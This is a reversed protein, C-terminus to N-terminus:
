LGQPVAVRTGEVIGAGSVQVLGDADDFLGTQVAVLHSGRGNPGVVQLAYGGEQVALLADVPVALVGSARQSTIAVQVPAQDLTGTAGPDDLSIVIHVTAQPAAGAPQTGAGGNSTATAVSGISAVRGTTSRNSGPLTITVADGQRVLSQLSADLDVAVQRAAPTADMVPANPGAAAGLTTHTAQVRIAGTEVVAEGLGLTGTQTVGLAAQWREVAAADASTFTGDAALDYPTAFGLALLDQEVEQVDPGSIGATLPRWLPQAGYLLPIPRGDVAYLTQGQAVVQGPAPLWTVIGHGGPGPSYQNVVPFPTGYGLTGNVREQSVLDRRAVTATPLAPVAPAPRPQLRLWAEAGAAALVAVLLVALTALLLRRGRRADPPAALRDDTAM